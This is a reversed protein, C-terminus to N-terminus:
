QFSLWSNFHICVHLFPWDYILLMDFLALFTSNISSSCQVIFAFDNFFSNTILSIHDQSGGPQIASLHCIWWIKLLLLPTMPPTLANMWTTIRGARTSHWCVFHLLLSIVIIAFNTVMAVNRSRDCFSHRIACGCTYRNRLNPSSQDLM